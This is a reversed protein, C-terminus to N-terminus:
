RRAPEVDPIDNRRGCNPCDWRCRRHDRVQRLTLKGLTGGCRGDMHGCLVRYSEPVTAERDKWFPKVRSVVPPLTRLVARENLHGM